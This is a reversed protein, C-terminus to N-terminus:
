MIAQRLQKMSKSRFLALRERCQMVAISDRLLSEALRQLSRRREVAERNAHMVLWTAKEIFAELM